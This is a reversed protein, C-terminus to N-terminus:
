LADIVADDTALWTSRGGATKAFHVRLLLGFNNIRSKFNLLPLLRKSAISYRFTLLFFLRKLFNM